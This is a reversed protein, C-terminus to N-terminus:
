PTSDKFFQFDGILNKIFKWNKGSLPFIVGNLLKQIMLGILVRFLDGEGFGRRGLHLSIPDKYFSFRCISLLRLKIILLLM